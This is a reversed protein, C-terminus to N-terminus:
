KLKKTIIEATASGSSSRNEKLHQQLWISSNILISYVLGSYFVGLFLVTQGCHEARRLFSGDTLM